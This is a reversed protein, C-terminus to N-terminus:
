LSVKLRLITPLFAIPEQNYDVILLVQKL